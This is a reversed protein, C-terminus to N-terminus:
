NFKVKKSLIFFLFEISPSHIRMGREQRKPTHSYEWLNRTYLCMPCLKRIIYIISLVHIVWNSRMLIITITVFIIRKRTHEYKNVIKIIEWM